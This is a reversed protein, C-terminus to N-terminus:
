KGNLANHNSCTGGSIAKFPIEMAVVCTIYTNRIIKQVFLLERFLINCEKKQLLYLTNKTIFSRFDYVNNLNVERMLSFYKKSLFIVEPDVIM